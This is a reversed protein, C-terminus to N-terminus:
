KYKLKAFAISLAWAKNDCAQGFLWMKLGELVNISVYKPVLAYPHAFLFTQIDTM